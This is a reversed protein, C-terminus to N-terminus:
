AAAPAESGSCSDMTHVKSQKMGSYLPPEVDDRIMGKAVPIGCTV